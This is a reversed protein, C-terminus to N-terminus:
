SVSEKDVAEILGLVALNSLLTQIYQDASGDFLHELQKSLDEASIPKNRISQLIDIDVKNFLHTDGSEMHYM